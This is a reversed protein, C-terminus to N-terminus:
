HITRHRTIAALLAELSPPLTLYEDDLRTVEHAFITALTSMPLETPRTMSRITWCEVTARQAFSTLSCAFVNGLRTAETRGQQHTTALSRMALHTLYMVQNVSHQTLAQRLGDAAQSAWGPNYGSKALAWQAYQIAEALALDEWLALLAQMADETPEIDKFLAKMTDQQRSCDWPAWRIRWAVSDFSYRTWDRALLWDDAHSPSLEPEIVGLAQLALLVRQSYHDHPALPLRLADLPLLRTLSVDAAVRVAASFYLNATLDSSNM